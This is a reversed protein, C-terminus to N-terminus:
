SRVLLYITMGAVAGVLIAIALTIRLMWLRFARMEAFFSRTELVTRQHDAQLHILQEEVRELQLSHNRSLTELERSGTQIGAVGRSLENREASGKSSRELLPALHSLYPLLVRLQLLLEWMSRHSGKEAKALSLTPPVESGSLDNLKRDKKMIPPLERLNHYGHFRKPHSIAPRSARPSVSHNCKARDEM